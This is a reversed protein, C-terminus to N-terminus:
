DPGAAAGAPHCVAKPYPHPHPHPSTLSASLSSSTSPLPVHPAELPAKDAGKHCLNQEWQQQTPVMHASPSLATHTHACACLGSPLDRAGGNQVFGPSRWKDRHLRRLRLPRVPGGQPLVPFHEGEEGQGSRCGLGGTQPSPCSAGAQQQLTAPCCRM